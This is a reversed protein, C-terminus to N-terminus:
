QKPAPNLWANLEAESLEGSKDTDYSNFETETATSAISQVEALNLGGSADADVAAFDVEQMPEQASAASASVLIAAASILRIIM